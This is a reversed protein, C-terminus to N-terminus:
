RQFLHGDNAGVNTHDVRTHTGIITHKDVLCPLSSLSVLSDVHFLWGSGNKDLFNGTDHLLEGLRPLNVAAVVRGVVLFFLAFSIELGSEYHWPLQQKELEDRKQEERKEREREGGGGVV